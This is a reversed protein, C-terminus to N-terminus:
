MHANRAVGANESHIESADNSNGPEPTLSSIVKRLEHQVRRHVELRKSRKTSLRVGSIVNGVSLFLVVLSSMVVKRINAYVIVSPQPQFKSM